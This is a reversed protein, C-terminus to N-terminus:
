SHQQLWTVHLLSALAKVLRSSCHMLCIRDIQCLNSSSLQQVCYMEAPQREVDENLRHECAISNTACSTLKSQPCRLM